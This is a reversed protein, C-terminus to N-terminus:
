TSFVANKLMKEIEQAVQAVDKDGTEVRFQALAYAQQRASFLQKFRTGDKALPRTNAGTQCRRQLEEVPANLLVTIGRTEKVAARNGPQTFAGGGLAIVCGDESRRLLGTLANSELERFVNEGSEDFIKAITKREQQEIVEDLDYFKWGLRRALVKGVTTKGAGMFGILFM